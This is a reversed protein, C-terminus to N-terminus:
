IDRIIVSVGPANTRSSYNKTVLSQIIQADDHWIIKSLADEVTRALKIQDPKVTPFMPASPLLYGARGYHGKPRALFFTLGLYLPGTMLAGGQEKLAELACTKVSHRWVKNRDGTSDTVVAHPHCMCPGKNTRRGAPCGKQHIVFASKSGGPVPTGPAFFSLTM